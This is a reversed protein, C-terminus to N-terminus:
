APARQEVGPKRRQAQPTEPGGNDPSLLDFGPLSICCNAPTIGPSGCVQRSSIPFAPTSRSAPNTAAVLMSTALRKAAEAVELLLDTIKIRPMLDYAAQALSGAM